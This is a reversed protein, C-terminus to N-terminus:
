AVAGIKVREIKAVRRVKHNGAREWHMGDPKANSTLKSLGKVSTDFDLSLRFIKFVNLVLM